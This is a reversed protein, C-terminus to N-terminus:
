PNSGLLLPAPVPASPLVPWDQLETGKTEVLWINRFMVPNSHDQIKIPLPEPGEPKGAGTKNPIEVDNQVVVGNHWVSIRANATKRGNADFVPQRFDIEYTQWQLPPLCMNVDPPITRYLAGCENFLGPLGFSDLIQVEYRCQLYLGSNARGQGTAAPKYPLYFEAHMRFNRYTNVTETGALLWGEPSLKADKLLSTEAGTFIRVAGPPPALGMTPSARHVQRLEGAIKGAKTLLAGVGNRLLIDFKDGTLKVTDNTREGHLVYRNGGRAWGGGPLGGPYKMAEFKGDGRAIVQLGIKESSRDSQPLTRQWGQYEGQLAFDADAHQPDTYVPLGDDAAQGVVTALAFMSWLIAAASM